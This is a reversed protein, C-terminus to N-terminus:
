KDSRAVSNASAIDLKVATAVVTRSARVALAAIGGFNDLGASTDDDAAVANRPALLSLASGPVAYRPAAVARASDRVSTDDAGM